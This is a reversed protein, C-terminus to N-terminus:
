DLEGRFSDLNEFLGNSLSRKVNQLDTELFELARQKCSRLFEQKLEKYKKSIGSRL